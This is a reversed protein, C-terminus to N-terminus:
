FLVPAVKPYADLKTWKQVERLLDHAVQPSVRSDQKYEPHRMVFQRMWNASTAIRGAARDAILDLYTNVLTRVKDDMVLTDLFARALPILGTHTSSGNMIEDISMQTWETSKSPAPKSATTSSTGNVSAPPMDLGLASMNNTVESGVRQPMSPPSTSPPSTTPSTSASLGGLLKRLPSNSRSRPAFSSCGCCETSSDHHHGFSSNLGPTSPTSGLGDDSAVSVSSSPCGPQCDQVAELKEVAAEVCPVNNRFWFKGTIVSDRKHATQMNADVLSLPIYLDLDLCLIVRSILVVFVSFAANEFDSPQVEMARFEVRWGLEPHTTPPPKFRMTQWNTSQLNEFHDTVTSDDQHLLERYIVLPDRIFLHAIHRALQPDVGESQLRAEIKEDIPLPIDNYEDRFSAHQSLYTSISDYRSKPIRRPTRQVKHTSNTSEDWMDLEQPELPAQGREERTRCDVAGAIVNWRCDVDALYGRFIPSSATLSLMIPALVALQDYLHRAECM